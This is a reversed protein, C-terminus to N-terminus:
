RESVDGISTQQSLTLAEHWQCHDDFLGDRILRAKHANEYVHQILYKGTKRLVPKGPLRTSDYRAPIIVIAERSM